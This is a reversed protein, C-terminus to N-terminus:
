TCRLTLPRDISVATLAFSREGDDALRGVPWPAIHRRLATPVRPPATLAARM